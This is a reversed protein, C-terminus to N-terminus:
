NIDTVTRDRLAAHVARKLDKHKPEPTDVMISIRLDDSFGQDRLQARMQEVMPKIVRHLCDIPDDWLAFPVAAQFALKM